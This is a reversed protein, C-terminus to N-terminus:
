VVAFDDAADSTYLLCTCFLITLVTALPVSAYGYVHISVWVWSAGSGFMGVGFLWGRWIADRPDCACLLYSLLVLSAIGAPWINFPALSLTVLAGALPAMLLVLLAPLRQGEPVPPNM